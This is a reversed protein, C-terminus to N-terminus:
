FKSTVLIVAFLYQELFSFQVNDSDKLVIEQVKHPQAYKGRM